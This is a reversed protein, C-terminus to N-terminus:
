RAARRVPGPKFTVTGEEAADDTLRRVDSGDPRMVFVDTAPQGGGGRAMEDKFGGRASSFVIWQGDHSWAGHADNGPSTTLRRLGTGDPRISYLEWDGDRNSTFLIADGKPSWAPLNDSGLDSTLPTVRGSGVELIALGKSTPSAVRLVLRKGDPSWSPFQYNRGDAPSVQTYGHGDPAITAIHGPGFQNPRTQVVGVGFAIREGTPSWSPGIATASPSEYLVRRNSGDASMIYVKSHESPFASKGIRFGSDTDVIQRGDPSFSPFAGTRLLTFGQDRSFTEVAPRPAADVARHFVIRRGNPSWQVGNFIGAPGNTGDAFRIGESWYDESRYGQGPKEETDSRVYAIRGDRLWQPTLKRGPGKTLATRELTALEIRAIQSSTPPSPFSRSHILWDMPAAEYIAIAEGDPSWAAGGASTTAGTLRRVQSGDTRMVYIQTWQLAAFFFNTSARAGATGRDSTFAIWQGDPSFAPRYDGGPDNTVNRLQRTQLDLLWIDAQGSRSSVFAMHRGDPSLVAQDDFAPDDTLRELGSGDTRIRFVDASGHRRSTFVVTGADPSFSPNADEKADAVLIRQDSGDANAIFIATNLPAFTAYAITYPEQAQGAGIAAVACVV